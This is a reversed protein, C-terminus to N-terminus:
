PMDIRMCVQFAAELGYPRMKPEQSFEYRCFPCSLTRRRRLRSFMPEFTKGWSWSRTGWMESTKRSIHSVVLRLRLRGEEFFGGPFCALRCGQVPAGREGLRVGSKRNLKGAYAFKM